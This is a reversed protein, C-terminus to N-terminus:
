AFTVLYPPKVVEQVSIVVVDKRKVLKVGRRCARTEVILHECKEWRKLHAERIVKIGEPLTPSRLDNRVENILDIVSSNLIAEKLASCQHKFDNGGLRIIAETLDIWKMEFETESLKADDSHVLTNRYYKIRSLDASVTVDSSTPLKDQINYDDTLNRLLTIMLSIDFRDSVPKGSNPFLLQWQNEKIVKGKLKQLKSLNRKLENHLQTPHFEADFTRQVVEKGKCNVLNVLRMYNYQEKSLLKNEM